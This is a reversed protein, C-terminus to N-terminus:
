GAPVQLRKTDRDSTRQFLREAEDSTRALKYADYIDNADKRFDWSKKAMVLSGGVFLAGFTRRATFFSRALAPTPLSGVLIAAAVLGCMWRCRSTRVM